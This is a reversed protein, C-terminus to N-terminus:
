GPTCLRARRRARWFLVALWLLATGSLILWYPIFIRISGTERKAYNAWSEEITFPLKIQQKMAATATAGRGDPSRILLPPPFTQMRYSSSAPYTDHQTGLYHTVKALAIGGNMHSFGYGRHNVSSNTFYSAHWAWCVFLM